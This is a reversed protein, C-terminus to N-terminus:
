YRFHNMDHKSANACIWVVLIMAQFFFIKKPRFNNFLHKSANACVELVGFDHGSFKKLNSTTLFTNQHTITPPCLHMQAYKWVLLIM